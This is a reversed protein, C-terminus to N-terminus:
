IKLVGEEILWQISKVFEADSVLDGAWWEANYKIWDPIEKTGQQNQTFEPIIIIDNEILYKIGAIFDDDGIEDQSWWNANFKIWLPIEISNKKSFQSPENSDDLSQFDYKLITSSDTISNDEDSSDWLTLDSNDTLERNSDSQVVEILDNFRYDTSRRYNDWVRVIIDSKEMPIAFTIGFIFDADRSTKEIIDLSFDSLYGNSDFTQLPKNRNYILYLESDNVTKDGEHLVYVAVHDIARVGNDEYFPFRLESPVGTEFTQTPFNNVSSIEDIILGGFGITGDDNVTRVGDFSLNELTPANGGRSGGSNALAGLALAKIGGVSFKSTFSASSTATYPDDGTIVTPIAEDNEFSGNHNIDHFITVQELTIGQADLSAQTFNFSIECFDTCPANFDIVFGLFSFKAATKGADTKEIVVNGGGTNPLKLKIAFNEPLSVSITDGAPFTANVLLEVEEECADGIGDGDSDTQGPNPIFPCNDDDLDLFGDGDVDQCADGIGNGDSDAQDSNSVLPCNDLQDHVGDEDEDLFICSNEPESFVCRYDDCEVEIFNEDFCIPEFGGFSNPINFFIGAFLIIGLIIPSIKIWEL